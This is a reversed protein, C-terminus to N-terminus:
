LARWILPRILTQKARMAQMFPFPDWKCCHTLFIAKLTAGSEKLTRLIYDADGGPDIVIAQKVEQNIVLYTNVGLVGTQLQKITM